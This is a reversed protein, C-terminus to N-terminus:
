KKKLLDLKGIAHFSVFGCSDCVVAICPLSKGGLTVTGLEEELSPVVFGDALSFHQGHCMPCEIHKVVESYKKIVENPDLGKM